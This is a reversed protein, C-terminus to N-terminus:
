VKSLMAVMEDKLVLRKKKFDELVADSTPEIGDEIRLIQKVCAHYEDFLKAFHQDSVKLTHIADKDEPLEHALDHMKESM